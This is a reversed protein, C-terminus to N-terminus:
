LPVRSYLELVVDGFEVGVGLIAVAAVTDVAFPGTKDELSGVGLGGGANSFLRALGDGLCIAM